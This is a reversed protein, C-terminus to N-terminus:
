GAGIAREVDGSTIVGSRVILPTPGRLDVVTSPIADITGGDVYVDVASGFVDRLPGVTSPTPEGTLNASTAALPGSAAVLAQAVPHDPARVGIGGGRVLLAPASPGSPLIVTLPGPWYRAALRRAADSPAALDGLADM